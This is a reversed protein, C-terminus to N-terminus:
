ASLVSLRERRQTKIRSDIRDMRGIWTSFWHGIYVVHDNTIGKLSDNIPFSILPRSSRTNEKEIQHVLPVCLRCTAVLLDYRTISLYVM